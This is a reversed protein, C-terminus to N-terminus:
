ANEGTQRRPLPASLAAAFRDLDAQDEPSGPEPRRRHAGRGAGSIRLYAWAALTAALPILWWIM